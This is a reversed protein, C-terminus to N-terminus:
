IREEREDTFTYFAAETGAPACASLLLALTLLLFILRKMPEELCFIGSRRRFPRVVGVSFRPISKFGKVRSTRYPLIRSKTADMMDCVPFFPLLFHLFADGRCHFAKQVVFLLSLYTITIQNM